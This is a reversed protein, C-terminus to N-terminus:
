SKLNDHHYHARYTKLETSKSDRDCIPCFEYYKNFEHKCHKCEYKSYAVIILGIIPSLILSVFIASWMSKKIHAAYAGVLLSGIFWSIIITGM